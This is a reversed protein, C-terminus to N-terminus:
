IMTFGGNVSITQGTIFGASDSALFAVMPAIDDPTGLRGLPIAARMREVAERAREGRGVVEDLMPTDTPGPCVCNATIGAAAVERAITRTFSILGGKAASYVAEFSSGVRGADSSINILRGGGRRLMSPLVSRTMRMPGGLNIELVRRQFPEDTEGFARIEGWGACNVLVAIEGLTSVTADVAQRVSAPDTVDLEVGIGGIDAALARAEGPALDAVVVHHGSAALSRSIATGIGGAGGTVLAVRM